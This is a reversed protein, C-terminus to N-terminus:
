EQCMRRYRLAETQLASVGQQLESNGQPTELEIRNKLENWRECAESREVKAVSLWILFMSVSLILLLIGMSLVVKKNYKIRAARRM